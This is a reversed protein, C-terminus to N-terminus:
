KKPPAFLHPAFLIHNGNVGYRPKSLYAIRSRSGDQAVRPFFSEAQWPLKNHRSGVLEMGTFLEARKSRRGRIYALKTALSDRMQQGQRRVNDLLLENDITRQVEPAIACAFPYNTHRDTKWFM